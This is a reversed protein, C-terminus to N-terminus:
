LQNCSKIGPDTTEKEQAPLAFVIQRQAICHTPILMPPRYSQFPFASVPPFESRQWLGSVGQRERM